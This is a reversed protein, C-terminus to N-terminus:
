GFFTSSADSIAAGPFCGKISCIKERVTLNGVSRLWIRSAVAWIRVRATFTQSAPEDKCNVSRPHKLELTPTSTPPCRRSASCGEMIAPVTLDGTQQCTPWKVVQLVNMGTIGTHPSSFGWQELHPVFVLDCLLLCFLFIVRHNELGLSYGAGEKTCWRTGGRGDVFLCHLEFAETCCAKDTSTKRSHCVSTICLM